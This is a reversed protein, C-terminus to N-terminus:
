PAKRCWCQLCRATHHRLQQESAVPCGRWGKYQMCDCFATLLGSRRWAAPRPGRQLTLPRPRLAWHVPSLPLLSSLPLCGGELMLRCGLHLRLLATPRWRLSLLGGLSKLPPGLLLIPHRRYPGWRLLHCLDVKAELEVCLIALADPKHARM